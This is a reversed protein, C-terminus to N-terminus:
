IHVFQLAWSPNPTDGMRRAMGSNQLYYSAEDTPATFEVLYNRQLSDRIAKGPYAVQLDWEYYFSGASRAARSTGFTVTDGPKKGPRTSYHLQHWSMPIARSKPPAILPTPDLLPVEFDEEFTRMHGYHGKYKELTRKAWHHMMDLHRMRELKLLTIDQHDWILERNLHSRVRCAECIFNPFFGPTAIPCFLGRSNELRTSFPKGARFCGSHYSTQCPIAWEGTDFQFGKKYYICELSPVHKGEYEENCGGCKTRRSLIGIRRTPFPLRGWGHGVPWLFIIHSMSSVLLFILTTPLPLLSSSAM